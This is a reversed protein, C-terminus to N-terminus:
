HHDRGIWYWIKWTIKLIYVYLIYSYLIYLAYISDSPINKMYVINRSPWIRYYLLYRKLLIQLSYVVVVTDRCLNRPSLSEDPHFILARCLSFYKDINKWLYKDHKGM